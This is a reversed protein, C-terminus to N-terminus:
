RGQRRVVKSCRAEGAEGTVAALSSGQFLQGLQNGSGDSVNFIPLIGVQLDEPHFPIGSCVSSPPILLGDVLAKEPLAIAFNGNADISGEAIM